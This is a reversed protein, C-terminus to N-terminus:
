REGGILIPASSKGNMIIVKANQSTAIERQAKIAEYQLQNDTLGSSITKQYDAIGQAEVRKREAEQKEKELVFQMKQADQEANIKAEISAQVSPPLSINRILIQELQLGRKNFESEIAKTVKVQFENRKESYLEVAQYYVANDRIYTRTIPRVINNVYEVGITKLIQPAKTPTVRFLVTMDITVELGDKTLVRIADDGEKQGESHIKSMTYNQTRAEFIEVDALPNILHLGNDLVGDQVTGFLKQVGIEGPEIIKVSSLIIGGLIILVGLVLSLSKIVTKGSSNAVMRGVAIILIGFILATIM